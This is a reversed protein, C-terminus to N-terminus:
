LAELPPRAMSGLVNALKHLVMGAKRVSNFDPPDGRPGFAGGCRLAKSALRHQALVERIEEKPFGMDDAVRDRWKDTLRDWLAALDHADRVPKGMKDDIIAKLGLEISTIRLFMSGMGKAVRVDGEALGRAEWEEQGVDDLMNAAIAYVRAGLAYNDDNRKQPKPM